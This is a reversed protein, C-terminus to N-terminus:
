SLKWFISNTQTRSRKTEHPRCLRANWVLLDLFLVVLVFLSAVAASHLLYWLSLFQQLLEMM